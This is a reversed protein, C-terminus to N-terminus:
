KGRMQEDVGERTIGEEEVEENGLPEVHVLVDFVKDLENRISEEVQKAIHHGEDIRLSPEVEIDIGIIYSDSIKRTRLRHPHHAGDVQDVAKFIKLLVEPDDIGDMLEVNTDLFIRIAVRIIWIGVLLAIILDLIPWSLIQTFVLGSLVSLSILVDGQMNKANATLLDSSAKKGNKKLYQGLWFKGLISIVAAIIALTGPIGFDEPSLLRRGASLLFQFGAFFIVFSLAKTAVTEAKHFGYPYKLTAPKTIMRAAILAIIFTVVDATSDIGDGVLSYSGAIFGVLIKLFALIANGIIGVLATKRIISAKDM